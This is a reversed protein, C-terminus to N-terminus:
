IPKQRSVSISLKPFEQFVTAEYNSNNGSSSSESDTKGSVIKDTESNGEEDSGSDSFAFRNSSNKDTVAVAVAAVPAAAQKSFAKSNKENIKSSVSPTLNPILQQAKRIFKDSYPSFSNSYDIHDNDAGVDRDASHVIYNLNQALNKNNIRCNFDPEDCPTHTSYTRYLAALGKQEANAGGKHHKLTRKKRSLAKKKTSKKRNGGNIFSKISDKQNLMMDVINQFYSRFQSRMKKLDDVCVWRIEAKEFIKTTKFVNEPLRKQLFRQNNNYYFPLWENYKFPFIHMRYTKHGDTKHDINYTGHAKLMKRIDADNGLFGTFEEGAERVATELFSESNDTGGGFDSFGPASDEYKGEKGFLFYLKGNHITTPLIGAGM